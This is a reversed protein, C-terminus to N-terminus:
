VDLGDPDINGILEASPQLTDWISIDEEELPTLNRQSHGLLPNGKRDALLKSESKLNTKNKSNCSPINKIM